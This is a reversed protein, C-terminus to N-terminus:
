YQKRKKIIKHALYRGWTDIKYISKLSNSTMNSTKIYNKDKLVLNLYESINNFTIKHKLFEDVFIENAANIIIPGSKSSNIKSILKLTSFKNKDVPLFELNQNSFGKINIKKNFYKEYLFNKNFMANAIPIKMDPLHYLLYTTGNKFKVIAHVLSQPHIIIEYKKLDFPFLKLAETLELVKNMLTASDVSIKKGM